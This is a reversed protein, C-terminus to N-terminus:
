SALRRRRQWRVGVGMELLGGIAAPAWVAWRRLALYTVTASLPMCLVRSGASRSWSREGSEVTM